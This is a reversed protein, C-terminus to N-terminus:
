ILSHEHVLRQTDAQEDDDWGDVDFQRTIHTNVQLLSDVNSTDLWFVCCSRRAEKV